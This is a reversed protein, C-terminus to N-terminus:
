RSDQALFKFLQGCRLKSCNRGIKIVVNPLFMCCRCLLPALTAFVWDKVALEKCQRLTSIFICFFFEHFYYFSFLIQFFDAFKVWHRCFKILVGCFHWFVHLFNGTWIQFIWSKLTFKNRVDSQFSKSHLYSSIIFFYNKKIWYSPWRLCIWM